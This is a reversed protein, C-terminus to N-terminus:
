RLPSIWAGPVKEGGSIGLLELLEGRGAPLEVGAEEGGVAVRRDRGPHLRLHGNQHIQRALQLLAQAVSLL